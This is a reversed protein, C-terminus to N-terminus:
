AQPYEGIGIEPLIERIREASIHKDAIDEVETSWAGDRKVAFVVKLWNENDMDPFDLRHHFGRTETRALACQAIAMCCDVMLPVELAQRWEGNAQRSSDAVVMAPVDEAAIRNLEDIATQLGEATRGGFLYQNALRQVARQVESARKGDGERELVEYAESLVAQVAEQDIAPAVAMAAARKAASRGAVAGGALTNWGAMGDMVGELTSAYFLGPIVTEGEVTLKPAGASDWPTPVLEIPNEPTYSLNREQLYENRRGFAQFNDPESLGTIDFRIGGNETGRGEYIEKMAIKNYTSLMPFDNWAAQDPSLIQELQGNLVSEPRDYCSFGINNCFATGDPHVNYFYLAYQEMNKLPVGHRALIGYADGTNEPSSNTKAGVGSWGNVWCYSGMAFVVSKARVMVAEGTSLNIGVIGAAAGDEATLVDLVMTHDLVQAGSRRIHQAIMRPMVNVRDVSWENWGEAGWISGDSKRDWVCGMKQLIAHVDEDMSWQVQSEYYEQDLLGETGLVANEWLDERNVDDCIEFGSLAHGWNIGSSGSHGFPGKDVLTVRQGSKLVSRAAFMGSIGGGVVVVDTTYTTFPRPVATGADGTSALDGGQSACATVAPAACLAAGGLALGKLLSRRTLGGQQEKDKGTM